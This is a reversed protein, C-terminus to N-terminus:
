NGVFLHGERSLLDDAAPRGWRYSDSLFADEVCWTRNTFLPLALALICLAQKGDVNCCCSLCLCMSCVM